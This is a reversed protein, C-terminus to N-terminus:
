DPEIENYKNLFEAGFNLNNQSIYEHLAKLKETSNFINKDTNKDTLTASIYTKNSIPIGIKRCIETPMNAGLQKYIEFAEGTALAVGTKFWNYKTFDKYKPENKNESSQEILENNKGLTKIKYNSNIIFNLEDLVETYKYSLYYNDYNLRSFFFDNNYCLVEFEKFSIQIIEYYQFYIISFSIEGEQLIPKKIPENTLSDNIKNLELIAFETFSNFLEVLLQLEFNLTLDNIKKLREFKNLSILESFFIENM